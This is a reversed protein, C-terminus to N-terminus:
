RSPVVVHDFDFARHCRIPQIGDGEPEADDRGHHRNKREDQDQETDRDTRDEDGLRIPAEIRQEGALRLERPLQGAGTDSWLLNHVSHLGSAHLGVEHETVSGLEAGRDRGAGGDFRGGQRQVCRGSDVARLERQRNVGGDDGSRPTRQPSYKQDSTQDRQQDTGISERL